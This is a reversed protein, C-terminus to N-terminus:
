HIIRQGSERDFLHIRGPALVAQVSRGIELRVDPAIRAVSGWVFEDLMLDGVVLVPCGRFRSLLDVPTM